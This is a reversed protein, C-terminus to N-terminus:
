SDCATPRRGPRGGGSSWLPPPTTPAVAVSGLTVSAWGLAYALTGLLVWPHMRRLTVWPYGRICGGPSLPGRLFPGFWTNSDLPLVVQM